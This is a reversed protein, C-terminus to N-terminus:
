LWIGTLLGLLWGLAFLGFLPFRLDNALDHARLHRAVEGGLRHHQDDLYSLDGALKAQRQILELTERNM